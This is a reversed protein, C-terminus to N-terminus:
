LEIGPEEDHNKAAVLLNAALVLVNQTIDIFVIKIASKVENPRTHIGSM